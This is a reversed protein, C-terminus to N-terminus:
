PRPSRPPGASSLLARVAPTGEFAPTADEYKATYAQDAFAEGNVGDTYTVTYTNKEWVAYLNTWGNVTQGTVDGNQGERSWFKFTYGTRTPTPADATPLTSGFLATTSYLRGETKSHDNQFDRM